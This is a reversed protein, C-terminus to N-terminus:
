VKMVELMETQYGDSPYVDLMIELIELNSVARNIADLATRRTCIDKEPTRSLKLAASALGSAEEALLKLVEAKGVKALYNEMIVTIERNTM